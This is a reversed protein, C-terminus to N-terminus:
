VMRIPLLRTVGGAYADCKRFDHRTRHPEGSFTRSDEAKCQLTKVSVRSITEKLKRRSVTLELYRLVPVKKGTEADKRRGMRGVVFGLGCLNQAERESLRTVLDGNQQLEVMHFLFPVVEAATVFLM